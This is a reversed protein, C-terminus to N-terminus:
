RGRSSWPPCGPAPSPLAAAPIISISVILGEYYTRIHGVQFKLEALLADVFKRGTGLHLLVEEADVLLGESDVLALARGSPNTTIPLINSAAHMRQNIRVVRDMCASYAMDYYMSRNTLPVYTRAVRCWDSAFRAKNYHLWRMCLDAGANSMVYRAGSRVM